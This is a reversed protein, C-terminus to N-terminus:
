ILSYSLLAGVYSRPPPNVTYWPIVVVRNFYGYIFATLDHNFNRNLWPKVTGENVPPWLDVDNEYFMHYVYSVAQLLLMTEM